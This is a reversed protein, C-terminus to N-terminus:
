KLTDPFYAVDGMIEHPENVVKNCKKHKANKKTVSDTRLTDGAPGFNNQGSNQVTVKGMVEENRGSHCSTFLLSGFVFLVAAAFIKYRPMRPKVFTPVTIETAKFRGCVKSESNKQLFNVIENTTKKTFDVVVKCCKDCLRGKAEPTMENWNESCPKPITIMTKATKITPHLSFRSEM